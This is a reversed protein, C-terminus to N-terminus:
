EYKKNVFRFLLQVCLILVVSIGIMVTSIANGFGYNYYRFTQFYMYISMVETYHAPGGGTMAIILDFSKLSGAIAFITTTFVVVRMQPLVVGTMIRYESAGELLAAEIQAHPIKQMNAVFIIVYIGTYMWLMVFLVPVIAYQKNEFVRVVYTPNGTLIRILSTFLGGPAFIQNWLIAVIVASIAIPLFIMAQFFQVGRIMKRHIIYAFMLGLPLQGFVSILMILVNNRVGHLFVPDAFLKKYNSLGVFVAAGSGSWQTFSFYVSFFIPFIVIASYVFLGPGMLLGYSIKDKITKSRVMSLAAMAKNM